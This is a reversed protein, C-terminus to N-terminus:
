WACPRRSVLTHPRGATFKPPPEGQFDPHHSILIFSSPRKNVHSAPELLPWKIRADSDLPRRIWRGGRGRFLSCRSKKRVGGNPPSIVMSFPHKGLNYRTAHTKQTTGLSM